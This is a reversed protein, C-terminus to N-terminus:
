ELRIARTNCEFVRVEVVAKPHCNAADALEIILHFSDLPDLDLIDFEVICEV